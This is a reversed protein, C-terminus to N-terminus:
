YLVLWLRSILPTVLPVLLAIPEFNLMQAEAAVRLLLSNQAHINTATRILIGATNDHFTADHNIVYHDM